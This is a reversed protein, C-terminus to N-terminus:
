HESHEEPQQSRLSCPMARSIMLTTSSMSQSHEYQVGAAGNAVRLGEEQQPLPPKEMPLSMQFEEGNQQQLHELIENSLFHPDCANTDDLLILRYRNRCDPSDELIARLTRYFLLVQQRRESAGFGASGEESMQHLTLLPTASELICYHTQGNADKVSYVSNKFVRKRVGARDMEMPPLNAHFQVRNDDDEPHACVSASLPLLIHLRSAWPGRLSGEAPQGRKQMNYEQVADELLPLVLKLYGLYFSWALGQAVNMQQRESIESMEVASPGMVGVTKLLLYCGAILLVTGMEGLALPVGHLVCVASLVCVCVQAQWCVCAKLMRTVSNDYRQRFHATAEEALLCAGHLIVGVSLGCLSLVVVQGLGQVEVGLTSALLVCALGMVATCVQSLPGRRKPVVAECMTMKLPQM